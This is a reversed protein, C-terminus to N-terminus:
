TNYLHCEIYSTPVFGEIPQSIRRVRTWGDGQDLEIMYLEEGDYMPISGESTADFPYLARCTGLPPQADIEDVYYEEGGSGPLSTRSEGLGSEPSNTSGHSPQPTGPASKKHVPQNTNANSVSSDSASRSLSEEGGSHSSRRSSLPRTASGNSTPKRQVQSPYRSLSVGARMAEELYGQFKALEAGLKDLKNSSQNLQGEISMPDGLAPNQEYVGKMKMLGDRAATEQQIKAQIEDLKQQLRKKRQNPPLDSCDEKAGDGYGPVNNKLAICVEILKKNSSFIGFLGVRKKIKGGSVTGKVTLHNHIPQMAPQSLQSNSDYTKAVSLDEFPFDGPPQFGSKYREIVLLTDEKENIENAAKEIGDLCQAIIPAVAREIEVSKIMYNRMNKIRKEDLEQLHQFVEPMSTHYHLTQMDNTKQLQNAYETKAEESQQTKLTMNMRQKEVEARSLNLDADARQYNEVAREAERFAKEYAKRARELNGIQGALAARLRIGEQLYKKRDEKFDKVLINLERLVTAQLNEAIVERQGAQDNVENLEMKFARCPSYKYDEEEEKKKPEKPQYSKVLRRLKAAYEVEIACRDRIFHGYRELFDIGKQTHHSLNDFQDWLETGWSM